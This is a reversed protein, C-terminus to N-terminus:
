FRLNQRGFFESDSNKVSSLTLFRLKCFFLNYLFLGHFKELKELFKTQLTLDFIELTIHNPKYFEVGCVETCARFLKLFKKLYISSSEPIIWKSRCINDARIVKKSDYTLKKHM